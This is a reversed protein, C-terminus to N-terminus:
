MFVSPDQERERVFELARWEMSGGDGSVLDEFASVVNEAPRWGQGVQWTVRGKGRENSAGYKVGWRFMVPGDKALPPADSSGAYERAREESPRWTLWTFLMFEADQMPLIRRKLSSAFGLLFPNIREPIPRTRFMDPQRQLYMDDEGDYEDKEDHELGPPYHKKTEIFYGEPHPDEGRPGSFYWKGDPACPHFEIKLNRMHPWVLPRGVSPFIAPTILARVDLEELCTALDRLGLSLPDCGGFECCSRACVLDPMPIAQDADDGYPNPKWFWLRARKFSIPLQLRVRRVTRCFEIRADRWPGDWARATQRLARSTFPVPLHEWLYPCDLTRLDPLRTALELPLGPSIPRMHIMNLGPTSTNAGTLVRLHTVYLLPLTDPNHVALLRTHFYRHFHDPNIDFSQNVIYIWRPPGEDRRIFPLEDPSQPQSAAREEIFDHLARFFTHVQASFHDNIAEFEPPPERCTFPLSPLNLPLPTEMDLNCERVGVYLRPQHANNAHANELLFNLIVKKSPM